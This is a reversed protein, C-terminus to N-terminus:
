PETHVIVDAIAPYERRIREEIESAREHAEALARDPEMGLTLFALVGGDTRYLRLDRPPSGTAERVVRSVADRETESAELPLDRGATEEGLPELHTQVGDVGPLEERIANEVRSAIEHAENLRLFGPLKLHLSIETRDGVRLVVVNHIERVRPVRLAAAHARERLAADAASPEVHVVVDTGPVAEEIANEVANAAAHGQEVAAAPPVGIVVDAFHRGAARRMRLRRLEVGRMALREIADRVAREAGAPTRDMLVDVNQRILRAAAALVLIAVFVAAVSDADPHGARVTVLGVFVAASGGLDSAFHLASTAFAASHYRRAARLLVTARSADIAIVVGVLALVWWAVDVAPAADGSLRRIAAVVIVVSFVVLITAEALAALHEAKGHGYPHSRDAPRVAVGVAFFTLLAAVLDTGSHAAESLLGLSGTALGAALKVAILIAAAAVSVLAIRRQPSV